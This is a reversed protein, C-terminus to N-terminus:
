LHSLLSFNVTALAGDTALSAWAAGLWGHRPILWLNLIFNFVAAGTQVTTRLRQLGIGTIASGTLQHIGRFAPIFCLWRLAYVSQSFEAGIMRPIIPAMIFVCVAMAAGILVARIALRFALHRVVVVGDRSRSFYRPLAAADIASIPISTIDIIRYAITYVGNAINMGYHSLMTKDIDNYISQTSGALSYEFGEELKNIFLRPVFRPSGFLFVVLVLCSLAAIINIVLSSLAWQRATAHGLFALMAVTILRLLSILLSVAATMPLREFAQFIQSTSIVLQRFVCEGLAVFLVLSASASNLLRPATIYLIVTILSGTIVTSFIINGWYEAYNRISLNVYRIFLVGSGLGSYPAAISTFALSGAFVGYEKVGLLRALLIFYIAQLMLNTGQGVLMWGANHALSSRQLFHFQNFLSSKAAQIM